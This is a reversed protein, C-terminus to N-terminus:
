ARSEVSATTFALARTPTAAAAAEHLRAAPVHELPHPGALPEHEVAAVARHQERRAQRVAGAGLQPVVGVGVDHPGDVLAVEVGAALDDLRVGKAARAQLEVLDSSCVDSSWDRKSRTH